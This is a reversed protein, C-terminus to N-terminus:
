KNGELEYQKILGIIESGYKEQTVLGIGKILHLKGVQEPKNRTIEDIASNTLIRYLPVGEMLSKEKRWAVFLQKLSEDIDTKEETLLVSKDNIITNSEQIKTETGTNKATKYFKVFVLWRDVKGRVFEESTSIILNNELFENLNSIDKKEDESTMNIRFIKCNIPFNNVNGGTV